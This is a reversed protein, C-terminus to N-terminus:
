GVSTKKKTTGRILTSPMKVALYHLRDRNPIMLYNIVQKECNYNHKSVYASHIQMKLKYFM